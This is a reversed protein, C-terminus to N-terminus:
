LLLYEQMWRKRLQEKCRKLYMQRKTVNVEENLKQLDEELLRAPRGRLLINRTTVENKFDEGQYCLPRNSMACEVDLLVEELESYTLFGREIAKSLFRKMVAVSREFFSGWWPARALNFRWEIRQNVLYDNLEHNQLLKTLWKKTATFTRANDSLIM